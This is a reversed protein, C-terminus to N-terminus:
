KRASQAAKTVRELLEKSFLKGTLKTRLAGYAQEVEKRSAVEGDLEEALLNIGTAIADIVDLDKGVPARAKFDQRAIALLADLILELRQDIVYARKM